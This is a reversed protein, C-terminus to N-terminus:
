RARVDKCGTCKEETGYAENEGHTLLHVGEHIIVASLLCCAGPFFANSGIGVEHRLRLFSLPGVEACDGPNMNPKFVYTANQITEALKSTNPGFCCSGHLTELAQKIAFRMTLADVPNFGKLEYLGFPDNLNVPNDRVYAFMNLNDRIGEPDESIFRGISADYYRARYYYLGTETDSERADIRNEPDRPSHMFNLRFGCACCWRM